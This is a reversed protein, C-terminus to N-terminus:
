AKMFSNQSTRMVIFNCRQLHGRLAKQFLCM